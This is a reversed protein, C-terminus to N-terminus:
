DSSDSGDSSADGSIADEAIADADAAKEQDPTLAPTTDASGDSEKAPDPQADSRFFIFAVYLGSMALEVVFDGILWTIGVSPLHFLQVVTLALAIGLGLFAAPRMLDKRWAGAMFFIAAVSTVAALERTELMSGEEHIFSLYHSTAILAWVNFAIYLIGQFALLIRIYRETSNMASM